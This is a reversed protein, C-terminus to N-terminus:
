HVSKEIREMLLADKVGGQIRHATGKLAFGRMEADTTLGGCRPFHGEGDGIFLGDTARKVDLQGTTPQRVPQFCRGPVRTPRFDWSGDPILPAHALVPFSARPM